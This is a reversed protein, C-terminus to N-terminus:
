LVREIESMFRDATPQPLRLFPIYIPYDLSPSQVTLRVLDETKTDKTLDDSIAADMRKLTSLVDDTVEIDRFIVKYTSGITRLKSIRQEKLKCFYAGPDDSKRLRKAVNINENDITPRKLGGEVQGLPANHRNLTDLHSFM